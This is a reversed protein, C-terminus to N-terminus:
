SYAESFMRVGPHYEDLYHTMERIMARSGCLYFDYLGPKLNSKIYKTVYGHYLNPLEACTENNGSLCPIYSLAVAALEQRYFFGSQNRAGHVLTFGRVGGAAMAVFPAVGVGTAVFYVQRETSRFTLYGKAKGMELVSGPAMNALASSVKGGSALKILFRLEVADPSSLITYERKEGQVDFSVYQGSLFQFGHPRSCILEFTEANLWVRAFVSASFSSVTSAVIKEM